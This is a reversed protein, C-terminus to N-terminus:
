GKAPLCHPTFGIKLSSVKIYLPELKKIKSSFLFILTKTLAVAVANPRESVRYSLIENNYLDMFPDLYLKKQCIVGNKLKLEFSYKAM